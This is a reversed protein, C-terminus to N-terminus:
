SCPSTYDRGAEPTGIAYKFSCGAIRMGEDISERSGVLLINAARSASGDCLLRAVLEPGVGAPDGTFLAISPKM